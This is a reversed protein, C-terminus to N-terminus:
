DKPLETPPVLLRLAFLVTFIDTLYYHTNLVEVFHLKFLQIASLFAIFAKKQAADPIQLMTSPVVVM